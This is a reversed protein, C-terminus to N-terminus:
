EFITIIFLKRFKNMLEWQDYREIMTKAFDSIEDRRKIM